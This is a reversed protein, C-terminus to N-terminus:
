CLKLTNNLVAAFVAVDETSSFSKSIQIPQTGSM